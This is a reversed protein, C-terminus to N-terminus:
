PASVEEAPLEAAARAVVRARRRSPSWYAAAIGIACAVMLYLAISTSTGTTDLLVAAIIPVPASSLIGGFQYSMSAGTYRVEPPFLEAIFGASVGYAAAHLIPLALLYAAFLGGVTGTNILLFVPLAGVAVLASTAMVFARPTWRDALTTVLPLTAVELAAACTLAVLVLERPMGLTVTAYSLFFTSAIYFIGNPALNVLMGSVVARKHNKLVSGIPVKPLDLKEKSALFEPSETVSLRIYLGVAVLLASALFPLRWGWALLTEESFVQTVIMVAGTSLVVGAPVGAQPFSAYFARRKPPAHELSMLVAGGWEGGVAFGQFFRLTVLLIPAWMGIQDYTPLLGVLFTGLGMMVLSLVLLRKRGIRDGFHGFFIGGLPRAIFAVAIAGFGALSSISPDESPFFLPNLILVTAAGFVLYDYWEITTGIFSALAVKMPTPPAKAASSKTM